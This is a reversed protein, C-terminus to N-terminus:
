QSVQIHTLAERADRQIQDRMNERGLPLPSTFNTMSELLPAADKAFPGMESLLQISWNWFACSNTNSLVEELVPVATQYEHGVSWLVKAGYVRSYANTHRVCDRLIPLIRPNAQPDIQSIAEAMAVTLYDRRTGIRSELVALGSRGGTGFAALSRAACGAVEDDSDKVASILAPVVSEADSTFFGLTRAALARLEPSDSHLMAWALDREAPQARKKLANLVYAAVEGKTDASGPFVLHQRVFSPLRWYFREYSRSGALGAARRRAVYQGLLKIGREDIQALLPQLKANMYMNSRVLWSSLPKGAYAPDQSRIGRFGVLAILLLVAFSACLAIPLGRKKM